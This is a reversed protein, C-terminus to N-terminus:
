NPSQHTRTSSTSYQQKFERREENMMEGDNFKSTSALRDFPENNFLSEPKSFQTTPSKTRECQLTEEYWTNFALRDEETCLVPHFDEVSNEVGNNDAVTVIDGVVGSSLERAELSQIDSLLEDFGDDNMDIVAAALPQHSYNNKNPLWAKNFFKLRQLREELVQNIDAVKAEHPITPLKAVLAKQKIASDFMESVRTELDNGARRGTNVENKCYPNSRAKQM